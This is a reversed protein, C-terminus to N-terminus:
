PQAPGSDQRWAPCVGVLPQQPADLTKEDANVLRMFLSTVMLLPRPHACREAERLEKHGVRAWARVKRALDLPLDKRLKAAAVGAFEVFREAPDSEAAALRYG